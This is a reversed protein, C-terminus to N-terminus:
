AEKVRLCATSHVKWDQDPKRTMVHLNESQNSMVQAGQKGQFNIKDRIVLLDTQKAVLEISLVEISMELQQRISEYQAKVSLLFPSDNHYLEDLTNLDGNCVVDYYYKFFDSVTM